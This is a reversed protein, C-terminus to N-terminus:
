NEEFILKDVIKWNVSNGNWLLCKDDIYCDAYIKRSDGGYQIINEEFAENFTDYPINNKHLFDKVLKGHEGSRCTWIAIKGGNNKIKTITEKAGPILEGINPYADYAITGDFDIGFLKYRM